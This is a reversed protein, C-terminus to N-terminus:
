AGPRLSRVLALLDRALASCLQELDSDTVEPYLRGSLRVLYELECASGAAINLFNRYERM